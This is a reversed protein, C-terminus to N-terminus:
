SGQHEAPVARQLPEATARFPLHDQRRPVRRLRQRRHVGLQAGHRLAVPHRGHVGGPTKNMAAKKYARELVKKPCLRILLKRAKAVREATALANAMLARAFAGADVGRDRYGGVGDAVGVVGAEAHGFHADEGHLPLVCAAWDMKLTSACPRANDSREEARRGHGAADGSKWEPPAYETGLSDDLVSDVFRSISVGPTREKIEALTEQIQELTELASTM